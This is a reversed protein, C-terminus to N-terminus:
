FFDKVVKGVTLLRILHINLEIGRIRQPKLAKHLIRILYDDIREM